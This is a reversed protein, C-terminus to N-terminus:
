YLYFSLGVGVHFMSVVYSSETPFPGGLVVHLGLWDAVRGALTLQGGTVLHDREVTASGQVDEDPYSVSYSSIWRNWGAYVHMGLSLERGPLLHFTHGAVLLAQTRHTAGQVDGSSLWPALWTPEHHYALALGVDVSGTADGSDWASVGLSVHALAGLFSQGGIGYTASTDLRVHLTGSSEGAVVHPARDRASAASAGLGLLLSLTAIRAARM